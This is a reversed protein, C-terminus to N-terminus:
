KKDANVVYTTQYESFINSRFRASEPTSQHGDVLLYGYPKKTAKEFISLFLRINKPMIRQAVAYVSSKDLPNSFLVLYHSNRLFTKRQKGYSFLDQLILIVTINKHHSERTFLSTINKNDVSELLLDDIIFLSNPILYDDFGNDPLGQILIIKKQETRLRKTTETETGYFWFVRKPVPHLLREANELLQLCWQTKGAQSAGCCIISCPTKIRSDFIKFNDM